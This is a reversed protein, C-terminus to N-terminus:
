NDDDSYVFKIDEDSNEAGYEARIANIIVNVSEAVIVDEFIHENELVLDEDYNYLITVERPCRKLYSLMSDRDPHLSLVQVVEDKAYEAYPTSLINVEFDDSLGEVVANITQQTQGTFYINIVQLVSM